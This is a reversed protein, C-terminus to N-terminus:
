LQPFHQWPIFRKWSLVCCDHLKTYRQLIDPGKRERREGSSCAATREFPTVFAWTEKWPQLFASLILRCQIMETLMWIVNGVAQDDLWSGVNGYLSIPNSLLSHTHTHTLSTQLVASVTDKTATRPLWKQKFCNSKLSPCHGGRTRLDESFILRFSGGPASSPSLSCWIFPQRMLHHKCHSPIAWM